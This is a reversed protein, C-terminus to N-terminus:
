AHCFVGLPSENRFMIQQHFREGDPGKMGPILALEGYRNFEMGELFQGCLYKRTNYEFPLRTFDRRIKIRRDNRNMPSSPSM